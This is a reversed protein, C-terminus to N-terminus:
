RTIVNGTCEKYCKITSLKWNYKLVQLKVGWFILTVNQKVTCICCGSLEIEFVSFKIEIKKEM